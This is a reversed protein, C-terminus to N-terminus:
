CSCRFYSPAIIGFTDLESQLRQGDIDSSIDEDVYCSEESCDRMLEVFEELSQGNREALEELYSLGMGEKEIAECTWEHRMGTVLGPRLWITYRFPSKDSKGLEWPCIIGQAESSACAKVQNGSVFKVFTRPLLEILSWVDMTAVHIADKM